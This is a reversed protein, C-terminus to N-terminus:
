NVCCRGQARRGQLRDNKSEQTTHSFLTNTSYPDSSRDIMLRQTQLSLEGVLSISQISNTLRTRNKM